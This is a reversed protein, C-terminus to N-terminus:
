LFKIIAFDIFRIPHQDDDQNMVFINGSNLDLHNISMQQLKLITM